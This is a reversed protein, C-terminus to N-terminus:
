ELSLEILGATAFVMGFAWTIWWGAPLRRTVGAMWVTALCVFFAAWALGIMISAAINM